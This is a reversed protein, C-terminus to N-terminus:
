RGSKKKRRILILRDSRTSRRTRMGVACKGFKTKPHKHGIPSRGEGGGHAHDCANKASGRVHPTFGLHRSKGAKGLKILQAEPRGVKGITCWCDEPILRVESSPMKVTVLNGERSLVIAAAGAARAIVGGNTPNMEINHVMTGIPVKDLPVANGVFIPADASSIVEQGVFYGVGHLIYRMEGDEYKVLCIRANRYPDYEITQITGFMDRKTRGFDIIRYKRAHARAGLRYKHGSERATRTAMQIPKHRPRAFRRRYMYTLPEYRVRTTLEEFTAISCNRLANNKPKRVRVGSTTQPKGKGHRQVKTRLLSAACVAAFIPLAVPRPAAASPRIESQGALPRSSQFLRTSVGPATQVFAPSAQRALEHLLLACCAALGYRSWAAAM